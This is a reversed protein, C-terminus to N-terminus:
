RGAFSTPQWSPCAIMQRGRGAFLDLSGSGLFGIVPM